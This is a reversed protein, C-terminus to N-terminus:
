LTPVISYTVNEDPAMHSSPNQISNNRPFRSLSGSVLVLPTQGVPFGLFPLTSCHDIVLIRIIVSLM